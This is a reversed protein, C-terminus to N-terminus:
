QKDIVLKVKTPEVNSWKVEPFYEDALCIFGTNPLDNPYWQTDDKSPKSNYLYLKGDKDRAAWLEIKKM